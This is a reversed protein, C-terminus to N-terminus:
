RRKLHQLSFIGAPIKVNFKVQKILMLTYRNKKNVTIMKYLTPIVRDHMKMFSSFTMVKKLVSHENYFEEKVPLYDSKRAYYIIKGWVVAAEPKPSLKIKYCRHSDVTEEGIISHTYDNVISSEKVIDDNTFDSGMWSDLMM